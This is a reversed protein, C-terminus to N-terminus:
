IAPHGHADLQGADTVFVVALVRHGDLVERVMARYRPEFIHLPLLAGPFLVTPLPFLPLAPLAPALDRLGGSAPTDVAGLRARRGFMEIASRRALFVADPADLAAHVILAAGRLRPRPRALAVRLHRRHRADRGRHGGQAGRPRRPLRPHALAPVAGGAGR